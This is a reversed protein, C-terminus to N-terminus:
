RARRAVVAFRDRFDPTWERDAVGAARASGVLARAVLPSYGALRELYYTVSFTKPSTGIELVEFGHRELLRVMGPRTFLHLHTPIVSWWRRGLLRAVRSGADPTALWLVGDPALLRALRELAAGPDPLHEIVDGLVVAAFAGEALEDDPVVRVGRARARAAAWRSPEVGVAEWGRASAESALFGVWCGYDLLRGRAPSHREVQQLAARATARQGEEEVEYDDSAASAYDLSAPMESLQLHGCSSCRLFDGLAVGFRDTSPILGEPGAEGAVRLGPGLPGGCAACTM